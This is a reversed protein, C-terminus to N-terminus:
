VNDTKQVTEMKSSTALVTERGFDGLLEIAGSKAQYIVVEKKIKQPKVLCYGCM